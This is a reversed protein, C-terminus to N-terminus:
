VSCPHGNVMNSAKLFYQSRDRNELDNAQDVTRFPVIGPVCKHHRQVPKVTNYTNTCGDIGIVIGAVVEDRITSDDRTIEELTHVGLDVDLPTPAFSSRFNNIKESFYVSGNVLLDNYEITKTFLSEDGYQDNRIVEVEGIIRHDHGGRIDFSGSPGKGIMRDYIRAKTFM